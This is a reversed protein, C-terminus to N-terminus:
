GRANTPPLTVTVHCRNLLALQAREACLKSWESFDVQGAGTHHGPDNTAANSSGHEGSFYLAGVIIVAAAGLVIPLMGRSEAARTSRSSPRTVDNDHPTM